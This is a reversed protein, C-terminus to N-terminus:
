ILTQTTQIPVPVLHNIGIHLFTSQHEKLKGFDATTYRETYWGTNSDGNNILDIKEPHEVQDNGAPDFPVISVIQLQTPRSEPRSLLPASVSTSTDISEVILPDQPELRVVERVNEVLSSGVQTRTVLLGM